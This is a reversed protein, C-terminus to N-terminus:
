NFTVPAHFNAGPFQKGNGTNINQTGEPTNYQNSGYNSFTDGSQENPVSPEMKSLKGMTDRLGKVQDKIVAEIASEKVLDCVDNMM